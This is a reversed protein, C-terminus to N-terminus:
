YELIGLWKEGPGALAWADRDREVLHAGNRGLAVTNVDLVMARAKGLRRVEDPVANRGNLPLGNESVALFMAQGCYPEGSWLSPYRAFFDLTRKAGFVMHFAPALERLHETLTFEPEAAFRSLLEIPNLGVLNQGNFDGHDPTLKQKRYWQDFRSNLMLNLEFHLHANALPIIDPPTNGVRGITDGANIRQGPALGPALQSLHAYLSFVEGVRDTHRLVVYIGYNSNGSHRNIYAVIGDAAARIPDLPRGKSDREVSRIDIGEHFHSVLRKNATQRTRNSGYLASEPNGSATPQFLRPYESESVPFDRNLPFRLRVDPAPAPIANTIVVPQISDPVSAAGGAPKAGHLLAWILWVIGLAALPVLWVLRGPFGATPDFFFRM